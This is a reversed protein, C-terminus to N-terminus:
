NGKAEFACIGASGSIALRKVQLAECQNFKASDPHSVGYYFVQLIVAGKRVAFMKYSPTEAARYDDVQALPAPRTITAGGMTDWGREQGFHYRAKNVDRFQVVSFMVRNGASDAFTRSTAKLNATKSVFQWGAKLNSLELTVKRADFKTAAFSSLLVLSAIIILSFRLKM